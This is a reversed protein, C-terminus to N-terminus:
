SISNNPRRKCCPSSWLSYWCWHKYRVKSGFSVTSKVLFRIFNVSILSCLSILLCSLGFWLGRLRDVIYKPRLEGYFRVLIIWNWEWSQQDYIGVESLLSLRFRALDGRRELVVSLITSALCAHNRQSACCVEWWVMRAAYDLHRSWPALIRSWRFHYIDGNKATKQSIIQFFLVNHSLNM